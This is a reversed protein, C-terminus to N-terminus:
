TPNITPHYLSIKFIPEGKNPAINHAEMAVKKVNKGDKAKIKIPAGIISNLLCFLAKSIGKFKIM